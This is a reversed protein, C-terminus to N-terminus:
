RRRRLLALLGIGGLLAASPEPVVVIRVEWQNNSQGAEDHYVNTADRNAHQYISLYHTGAALSSGIEAMGAGSNSWRDNNGPSDLYSLGLETFGGSFDPSIRYGLFSSTGSGQDYTQNEGGLKISQGVNINITMSYANASSNDSDFDPNGTAVDLDYYVNGAGNVNLIVFGNGVWSLAAFASNSAMLAIIAILNRLKM